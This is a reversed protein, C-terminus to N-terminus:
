CTIDLIKFAMKAGNPMVNEFADGKKRGLLAVGLPSENSIKGSSPDSEKPGVIHYEKTKGGAECRVRCGVGVIETSTPETVVAHGIFDELEMVRGELFALAEKADHYEANESLDGLEKAKAIRDAIEFRRVGKLEALEAKLKELGEKTTVYSKM